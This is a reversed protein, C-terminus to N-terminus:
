GSICVSRKIHEAKVLHASCCVTKGTEIKTIRCSCFSLFSLREFHIHMAPFQNPEPLYLTRRKEYDKRTVEFTMFIKGFLSVQLFFGSGWYLLEKTIRSKKIEALNRNILRFCLITRLDMGLVVKKKFDLLPLSSSLYFHQNSHGSVM